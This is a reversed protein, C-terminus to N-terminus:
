RPVPLLQQDQSVVPWASMSVAATGAARFRNTSLDPWGPAGSMVLMRATM